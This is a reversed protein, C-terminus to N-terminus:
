VTSGMGHPATQGSGSAGRFRIVSSYCMNAYIDVNIKLKHM